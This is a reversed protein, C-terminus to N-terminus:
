SLKAGHGGRPHNPGLGRDLNLPKQLRQRETLSHRPTNKRCHSLAGIASAASGEDAVRGRRPCPERSSKAPCCYGRRHWGGVDASLQLARGHSEVLAWFWRFFLGFMCWCM